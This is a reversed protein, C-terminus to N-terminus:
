DNCKLQLKTSVDQNSQKIQEFWANAEQYGCINGASIVPIQDSIDACPYITNNSNIYMGSISSNEQTEVFFATQYVLGDSCRFYREEEYVDCYLYPYNCERKQVLQVSQSEQNPNDDINWVAYIIITVFVIGIAWWMGKLIDRGIDNTHQNMGERIAKTLQKSNM